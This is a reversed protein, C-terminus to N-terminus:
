FGNEMLITHVEQAESQPVYIEYFNEEAAVNKYVAKVKVLFGEKMLISKIHDARAKNQAM